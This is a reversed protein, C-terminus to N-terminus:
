GGSHVRTAMKTARRTNVIVSAFLRVILQQTITRAGLRVRRARIAAPHIHAAFRIPRRLAKAQQREIACVTCTWNREAAIVQWALLARARQEAAAESDPPQSQGRQKRAPSEAFAPSLAAIASVAFVASREKLEQLQEQRRPAQQQHQWVQQWASQEWQVSELQWSSPARAPRIPRKPTIM